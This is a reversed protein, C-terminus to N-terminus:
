YTLGMSSFHVRLDEELNDVTPEYLLFIEDETCNIEYVDNLSKAIQYYTRNDVLDPREIKMLNFALEVEDLPTYAPKIIIDNADNNKKTTNVIIM